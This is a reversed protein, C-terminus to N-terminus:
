DTDISKLKAKVNGMNREKEARMKMIMLNKQTFEKLIATLMMTLRLRIMKRVRSTIQKKYRFSEIVIKLLRLHSRISGEGCKKEM